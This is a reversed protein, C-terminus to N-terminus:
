VQPHRRGTLDRLYARCDVVVARDSYAFVPNAELEEIDRHSLAAATIGLITDALTERDAAPQGRLGNLVAALRIEGLMELVEWRGVPLGRLAIDKHVEVHVGGSGVTLVPGFQADHRVGVLLEAVPRPLMPMVLVGRINPALGRALAYRSVASIAREFAARASAVGDVDLIVGGADSKHSVAASVVKLAVPASVATVAAAVEDATACLTVPVLPVGEADLIERVEPELLTFRGESRAAAVGSPETRQTALVVRLVPEKALFLGRAHLARMCRSGIEVSRVVQVDARGLERLPPPHLTAYLSHVVLPLAAERMAAAMDRAASLEAGALEDAFRIAYGGFLGVVFVGGTEPAQSVIRVVRAFVAPDRDAAGVLDIPNQVPGRAGIADSVRDCTATTLRALPVNLTTLADAALTGHGGGDSVIVVGRGPPVPPQSALSRTVPFLEDSRLVESVGGQRLAARLVPYSGAMAGTHSRAAAVGSETRGGKLLVVPKTRSVRQATEIFARGDRFGEVYIAIASTGDHQGLYDLYEDFRIDTENGVGVYLSVGGGWADAEIFFGLAVNGSQALLGLRGAAVNRAGVLNLHLETNIIGSTNPGILRLGTRRAVDAVAAELRDGDGGAERFGVAPVVAGRVGAAACHELIGPVTEAPTAIMALDPVAGIAAITPYVPLGLLDGGAPHVPYIPGAFGSELLLQVARYGRKTPDQSAGVVAVSRPSLVAALPHRETM